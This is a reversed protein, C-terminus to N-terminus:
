PRLAQALDEDSVPRRITKALTREVGKNSVPLIASALFSGHLSSAVSIVWTGEKPLSGKIAHLGPTSLAVVDLPISKRKGDVKGEATATYVANEPDHCGTARVLALADKAKPDTSATPNGFELWIAGAVMPVAIALAIAATKIMNKM